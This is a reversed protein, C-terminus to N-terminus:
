THDANTPVGSTRLAQENGPPSSGAAESTAPTKTTGTSPKEMTHNHRHHSISTNSTTAPHPERSATKKEARGDAMLTSQDAAESGGAIPRRYEEIWPACSRATRQLRHIREMERKGAGATSSYLAKGLYYLAEATIERTRKDAGAREEVGPILEIDDCRHVELLKRRIQEFHEVARRLKGKFYATRARRVLPLLARCTHELEEASVVPESVSAEPEAGTSRECPTGGEEQPSTATRHDAQPPNGTTEDRKSEATAPVTGAERRVPESTPEATKKEPQPQQTSNRPRGAAVTFNFCITPATAISPKTRRRAYRGRVLGESHLWAFCALTALSLLALRMPTIAM